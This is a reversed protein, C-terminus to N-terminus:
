KNKDSGDCWDACKTHEGKRELNSVNINDTYHGQIRKLTAKTLKGAGGIGNIKKLLIFRETINM